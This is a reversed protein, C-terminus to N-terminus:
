AASGTGIMARLRAEFALSEPRGKTVALVTAVDRAVPDTEAGPNDNAPVPWRSPVRLFDHM